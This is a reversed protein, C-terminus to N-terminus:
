KREKGQNKRRERKPPTEISELDVTKGVEMEAEILPVGVRLNYKWTM